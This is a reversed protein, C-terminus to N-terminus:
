VGRDKASSFEESVIRIHERHVHQKIADNSPRVELSDLWGKPSYSKMRSIASTFMIEDKSDFTRKDVTSDRGMVDANAFRLLNIISENTFKKLLIVKRSDRSSHILFIRIHNSIILLVDNFLKSPLKLSKLESEILESKEHGYANGKTAYLLPKGIDHYIAALKLTTSDVLDLVRMSHEYVSKEQHYASDEVCKTMLYIKPFIVDLVGLDKLTDFFIRSNPLALAKMLEMTVREQVLGELCHKMTLVIKKTEEAITFDPLMTKFRALRLVRVPDEKFAESTHRLVKAKIDDYGNYPDILIGDESVAISNITLDRRLLDNEISIDEVNISFDTYGRGASKESRALAIENGNEDLFVPFSNGVKKHTPFQKMYSEVNYGTVVYDVDSPSRDLITDRVYGGVTYKVM